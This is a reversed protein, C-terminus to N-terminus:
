THAEHGVTNNELTDQRGLQIIKLHTSGALSETNKLFTRLGGMGPVVDM